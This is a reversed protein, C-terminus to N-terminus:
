NPDWDTPVIWVTEEQPLAQPRFNSLPKPRTVWRPEEIAYQGTRDLWGGEYPKGNILTYIANNIADVVKNMLDFVDIYWGNPIRATAEYKVGEHLIKIYIMNNSDRINYWANPTYFMECLAISGKIPQNLYNTFESGINDRYVDKSFTNSLYINKM